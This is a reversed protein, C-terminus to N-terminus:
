ASVEARDGRRVLGGTVVEAYIGFRTHGYGGALTKLVPMNREGTAPDVETAACRGIPEIVALRAEGVRLTRGPWDLEAWPALGDLILNARFRRIDVPRRAVRELDRASALSAISVLRRPSDSLMVGGGDVLRPAGPTGRDMFAALFQNVLDRGLPTTIDGGAVRRGDRLITLQGTAEDFRTQLAALRENVMLMLFQRKPQWAPNQPDFRSAGHAIAFRRDLPLGEGPRLTVEEMSQPSLGKVPYRCIDAVAPPM